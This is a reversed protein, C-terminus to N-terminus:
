ATASMSFTFFRKSNDRSLSFVRAAMKSISLLSRYSKAVPWWHVVFRGMWAPSGCQQPSFCRWCCNFNWKREKKEVHTKNHIVKLERKSENVEIGTWCAPYNIVEQKEFRCRWCTHLDCLWAWRDTWSELTNWTVQPQQRSFRLIDNARPNITFNEGRLVKRKYDCVGVAAPFKEDWLWVHHKAFLIQKSSILHVFLQSSNRM